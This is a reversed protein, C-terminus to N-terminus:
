KGGKSPPECIEVDRQQVGWRNAEKGPLWVDIWHRPDVDQHDSNWGAGTDLATGAYAASGDPNRVTFTTGYPYPQQRTNAVAVTGPGVGEPHNKWYAWDSGPGHDNYATVTMPQTYCAAPNTSPQLSAAAADLGIDGHRAADRAAWAQLGPHGNAAMHRMVGSFIGDGPRYPLDAFTLSRLGFPDERTAAATPSAAVVPQAATESASDEFDDM